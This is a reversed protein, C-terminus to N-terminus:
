KQIFFFVTTCPRTQGDRSTCTISQYDRVIDLHDDIFERFKSVFECDCQWWNHALSLSILSPNHALSWVPFSILLNGDLRLVRLEGLNRFANAKMRVLQNGQLYLERLTSELGAFEPGNLEQLRNQSLDLITLRPLGAFSGNGMTTVRSNNLFLKTLKVRGIFMASSVETFNNGDLHLTTADVPITSPISNLSRTSCKVVNSNWTSDRFCFCGEEEPCKLRCDCAFFDCCMCSPFCHSEYRCLFEEPPVDSLPILVAYVSNRRSSCTLTDMDMVHPYHHLRTNIGQFWQLHCDCIFPNDEFYFTPSDIITDSSSLVLSNMELKSLNNRELHVRSLNRKDLFTNAEIEEINNDNLYLHTLSSPISLPKLIRIKNFSADLYKLSYDGKIGFYNALSDVRNNHVDLWELNLPLFAYDFWGLHNSSINLWKLQVLSSLVGNIDELLNEAMNLSQLNNLVTFTERELAKFRNISLDLHMLQSTDKFAGEGVRSLGNNAIRLTKLEGLGKFSERKIVGIVNSSLDLYILAELDHFANPVQTLYNNNLKLKQLRTCNEFTGSQLSHIKNHDLFLSELHTLGELTKYQITELENRSLTLIVLNPTLRFIQSSISKLRNSDLNLAELNEIYAFLEPQELKSLHNFSLDLLLLSILHDFIGPKLWNEDLSNGSLNLSKLSGLNSFVNIDITGLSNNGISLSELKSLGKFIDPPLAVLANHSLDLFKLNGLGQFADNVLVRLGNNSIDLSLLSPLASIAGPSISQISNGKLILSELSSINQCYKGSSNRLGLDELNTLNNFSANFLQISKLPCLLGEPFKLVNNFSLDLTELSELGVLSEYDPEMVLGSMDANHTQIVLERLRILSVFSRPPLTHVKCNHIRLTSLRSLEGFHDSRLQSEFYLVDSCDVNLEEIVKSAESPVDSSNHRFDLINLDCHIRTQGNWICNGHIPASLYPLLLLFYNLLSKM